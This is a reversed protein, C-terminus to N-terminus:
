LSASSDVSQGRVRLDCCVVVSVSLRRLIYVVLVVGVRGARHHVPRGM